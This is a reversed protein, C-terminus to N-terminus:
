AAGDLYGAYGVHVYGPVTRKCVTDMCGQIGKEPCLCFRPHIVSDLFILNTEYVYLLQLHLPLLFFPSYLIGM